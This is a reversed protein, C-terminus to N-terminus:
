SMKKAALKKEIADLCVSVSMPLQTDFTHLAYVPNIPLQYDPFVPKLNSEKSGLRFEPILGIGAGSEILTFCTNFSNTICRAEAVIILPTQGKITSAKVNTTKFVHRIKKDQWSNAIYAAEAINNQVLLADSACLVDRFEGIRRQKINSDGSQGVRIALDINDAMLDHRIDSSILEPYLLPFEKMVEAIAPAILTEMLANPATIRVTGKPVELVEQAQQWAQDAIQNLTKCHQYFDQGAPTLTQRRTTRKLLTIGLNQELTKLHQSIVSKSLQLLEAAATISGTEVIHAFVAMHRLQNM